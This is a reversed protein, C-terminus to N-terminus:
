TAKPMGSQQHQDAPIYPIIGRDFAAQQIERPLHRADPIMGNVQVFWVMPNDALRSTLTWQPEFRGIKLLDRITKSRGQGTGTSVGFAADIAGTKMHPTQSPDDLFNVMGITRVIGCAWAAEKGSLLPSPRKRALTALLQGCLAAYEENLHERCFPEVLAWIADYKGQIAAPISHGSNNM